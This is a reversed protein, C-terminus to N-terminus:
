ITQLNFKEDETKSESTLLLKPIIALLVTSNYFLRKHIWLLMIHRWLNGMEKLNEKFIITLLLHLRFNSDM